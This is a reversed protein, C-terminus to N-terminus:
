FRFNCLFMDSAVMISVKLESNHYIAGLIKNNTLIKNRKAMEWPKPQSRFFHRSKCPSLVVHLAPDQRTETDANGATSQVTARQYRCCIVASVAVKKIVAQM